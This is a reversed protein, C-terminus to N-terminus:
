PYDQRTDFRGQLAKPQISPSKSRNKGPTYDRPKGTYAVRTSGDGMGM